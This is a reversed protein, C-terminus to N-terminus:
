ITQPVENPRNMAALRGERGGPGKLDVDVDAARRRRSGAKM